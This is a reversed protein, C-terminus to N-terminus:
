RGTPPSIKLSDEFNKNEFLKAEVKLEKGPGPGVEEFGKAFLGRWDVEVSYLVRTPMLGSAAWDETVLARDTGDLFRLADPNMASTFVAIVAPDTGQIGQLIRRLNDPDRLQFLEQQFLREQGLVKVWGRALADKERVRDPVRTFYLAALGTRKEFHHDRTWLALKEGLGEFTKTRDSSVVWTHEGVLNAPGQVVVIPVQPYTARLAQYTNGSYISSLFLVGIRGKLPELRNLVEQTLANTKMVVVTPSWGHASAVESWQQSLGVPGSFDEGYPDAVFVAPRAACSVWLGALVLVQWFRM